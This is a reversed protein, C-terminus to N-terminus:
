IGSMTGRQALKAFIKLVYIREAIGICNGFEFCLTLCFNRREKLPICFLLLFKRRNAFSLLELASHLIERSNMNGFCIPYAGVISSVVLNLERWYSYAPMAVFVEEVNILRKKTEHVPELGCLGDTVQLGAIVSMRICNWHM